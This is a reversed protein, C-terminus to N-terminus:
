ATARKFSRAQQREVTRRRAQDSRSYDHHHVFAVRNATADKLQYLKRMYDSDPESSAKGEAQMTELERFMNTILNDELTNSM